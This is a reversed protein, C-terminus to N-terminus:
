GQRKIFECVTVLTNDPLDYWEGDLKYQILKRHLEQEVKFANDLYKSVCVVNLKHPRNDLEKIRREVDKSYGIKYYGGCEFVYVYASKKPKPKKKASHWANNMGQSMEKLLRANHQELADKHKIAYKIMKHAIDIMQESEMVFGQGDNIVCGDETETICFAYFGNTKFIM